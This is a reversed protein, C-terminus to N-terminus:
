IASHSASRSLPSGPEARDSWCAALSPSAEHTQSRRDKGRSEAANRRHQSRPSRQRESVFRQRSRLVFTLSLVSATIVVIPEAPEVATLAATALAQRGPTSRAVRYLQASTVFFSCGCVEM